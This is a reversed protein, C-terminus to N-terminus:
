YSQSPWSHIVSFFYKFHSFGPLKQLKRRPKFGSWRLAAIM